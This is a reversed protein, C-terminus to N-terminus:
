HKFYPLIFCSTLRSRALTLQFLLDKSSHPFM